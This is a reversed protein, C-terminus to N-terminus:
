PTSCRRSDFQSFLFGTEFQGQVVYNTYAGEIVPGNKPGAPVEYISGAHGDGAHLCYIRRDLEFSPFRLWAIFSRSTLMPFNISVSFTEVCPEPAEIFPGNYPVVDISM